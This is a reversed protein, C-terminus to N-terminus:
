QSPRRLSDTRGAAPGLAQDLDAVVRAIPRGADIFVVAQANLRHAIALNFSQQKAIDELTDHPDMRGDRGRRRELIVAPDAQLVVVCGLRREVLEAPLAPELGQAAQTSLHIDLVCSEPLALMALSRLRDRESRPLGRLDDRSLNLGERTAQDLM